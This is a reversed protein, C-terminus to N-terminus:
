ALVVQAEGAGVDVLEYIHRRDAAAPSSEAFDYNDTEVFYHSHTRILVDISEASFFLVQKSDTLSGDLQAIEAAHFRAVADQGQSPRYMEVVSHQSTPDYFVM